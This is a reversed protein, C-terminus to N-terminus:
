NVSSFPASGGCWNSRPIIQPFPPCTRSVDPQVSQLLSSNEGESENGDFVDIVWKETFVPINVLIELEQHSSADMTFLADTWYMETPTDEPYFDAEGTQWEEWASGENRTRFNLRLESINSIGQNIKWGSGLCSFAHSPHLQILYFGPQINHFSYRTASVGRRNSEITTETPLLAQQAQSQYFIILFFIIFLVYNKM